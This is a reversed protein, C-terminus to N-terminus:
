AASKRVSGSKKMADVAEATTWVTNAMYRFNVLAAQYGDGQSGGRKNNPKHAVCPISGTENNM